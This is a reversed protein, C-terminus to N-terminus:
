AAEPIDLEGTVAATILAQRKEMLLNVQETLRACAKKLPATRKDFHALREQQETLSPVPIRFDLVKVSNTSALNTSRTGTSEFYRRADSTRTLAALFEPRLKSAMPRVAFVHNQHLCDPIEGQWVTGRGLKDLDGGETMLVDGPRLATRQALERPVTVVKVETLDLRDAQVNAVRLYPRSVAGHGSERKSDLTLGTQLRAVRALRLRKDTLDDSFIADVLSRETEELLEIMRKKKESIADIRATETDLYDAIAQQTALPPVPTRYNGIKEWSTRPMKSGESGMVTWDIFPQARVVYGLWRPSVKDHTRMCVFETSASYPQDAVISKSLYPRLKGFLVDGPLVAVQGSNEPPQITTEVGQVLRGSESELHELALGPAAKTPPSTVQDVLHRLRLTNM